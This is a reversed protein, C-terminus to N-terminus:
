VIWAYSYMRVGCLGRYKAIIQWVKVRLLSLLLVNRDFTGRSGFLASTKPVNGPNARKENRYSFAHLRLLTHFLPPFNSVSSLLGVRLFFM